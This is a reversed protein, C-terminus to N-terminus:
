SDLNKKFFFTSKSTWNQKKNWFVKTAILIPWCRNRNKFELEGHWWALQFFFSHMLDDLQYLADKPNGLNVKDSVLLSKIEHSYTEIRSCFKDHPDDNWTPIPFSFEAGSKHQNRGYSCPKIKTLGCCVVCIIMSGRPIWDDRALRSVRCLVPPPMIDGWFMAFNWFSAFHKQKAPLKVMCPQKSTAMNNPLEIWKILIKKM